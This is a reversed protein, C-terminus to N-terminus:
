ISCCQGRNAQGFIALSTTALPITDTASQSRAESEALWCYKQLSTGEQPSADLYSSEALLWDTSYLKGMKSLLKLIFSSLYNSVHRHYTFKGLWIQSFSHETVSDLPKGLSFCNSALSALPCFRNEVINFNLKLLSFSLSNTLKKRECFFYFGIRNKKKKARKVDLNM